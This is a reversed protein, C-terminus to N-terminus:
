TENWARLEDPINVDLEKFIGVIKGYPKDRRFAEIADQVDEGSYIDFMTIVQSDEIYEIGYSFLEFSM